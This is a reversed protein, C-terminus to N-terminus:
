FTIGFEVGLVLADDIESLGNPDAIFQVNPRVYTFNNLQLQYNVEFMTESSQALEGGARQADRLDSSFWAGYMGVAAKDEPRGPFLGQYIFGTNFFYPMPSKEEDPSVVVTLFGQLGRNSDPGDRYLMQEVIIYYGEQGSLERADVGSLFLNNGNLDTAVDPFDGTHRFAGLSYRAPLGLLGEEPRYGIKAVILVGNSGFEFDTGHEDNVPGGDYIGFM